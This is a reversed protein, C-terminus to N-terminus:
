MSVMALMVAHICCSSLTTWTAMYAYDQSVATGALLLDVGGMVISPIVSLIGMRSVIVFKPDIPANKDTMTRSLFRLFCYLLLSDCLLLTLVSTMEIWYSWSQAGASPIVVQYIAFPIPSLILIPSLFFIRAITKYFRPFIRQVQLHSRRWCFFLYSLIWLIRFIKSSTFLINRKINLSYWLHSTATFKTYIDALAQSMNLAYSIDYGITSLLGAFLGINFPTMVARMSLPEEKDPIYYYFVYILFIAILGATAISLGVYLNYQAQITVKYENMPPCNDM